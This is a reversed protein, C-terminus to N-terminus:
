VDLLDFIFQPHDDLLKKTVRAKKSGLNVWVAVQARRGRAPGTGEVERGDDARLGETVDNRFAPARRKGREVV